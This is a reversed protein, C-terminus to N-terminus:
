TCSLFLNIARLTMTNIANIFAQSLEDLGYSFLSIARRGHKKVPIPKIKQHLYIGVNYAWIFAIAMVRLLTNMRCYDNVHTQELHFGVSKFAKFMTEIQWRNKYVELGLDNQNFCVLILYDVAGNQGTYRIGSLYVLTYQLYVIRPHFYAQHLPQSRLLWCAKVKKGNRLRLHTNNRIRIYFRIRHHTLFSLWEEGIFERDATLYGICDKGFYHMFRELLDIREKQSSNGRKDGLICWFIPLGVGEYNVCLFLLNINLAGLKWNTRDLSLRYPGKLPLMKAILKCYSSECFEFQSFFRQVRRLRSSLKAGNHYGIALKKFNVSRMKLMSVILYSLCHIRAKNGQLENKLIAQLKNIKDPSIM